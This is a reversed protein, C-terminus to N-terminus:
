VGFYGCFPFSLFSSIPSFQLKSSFFFISIKTFKGFSARGTYAQKRMNAMSDPFCGLLTCKRNFARTSYRGANVAQFNHIQIDLLKIDQLYKNIYNKRTEESLTNMAAALKSKM